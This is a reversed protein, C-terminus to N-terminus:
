QQGAIKGPAYHLASIFFLFVSQLPTVSERVSKSFSPNKSGPTKERGDAFQNEGLKHIKKWKMREPTLQEEFPDLLMQADLRKEAGVLVRHFRLDPDGTLSFDSSSQCRNHSGFIAVSTFTWSCPRVSGSTAATPSLRIPLCGVGRRCRRGPSRIVHGRRRATLTRDRARRLAPTFSLAGTRIDPPSLGSREPRIRPPFILTPHSCDANGQRYHLLRPPCGDSATCYQIEQHM